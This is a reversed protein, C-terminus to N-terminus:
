FSISFSLFFSLFFSFFVFSFLLFCFFVFSFLLFCFFVFSFLLFCFFVFSFLFNGLLSLKGFGGLFLCGVVWVWLIAGLTLGYMSVRQKGREYNSCQWVLILVM